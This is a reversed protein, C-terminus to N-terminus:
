DKRIGAAYGPGFFTMKALTLAMEQPSQKMDGALWQQIVGLHASTVYAMLYDVPVLMDEKSITAIKQHFNVKMFEKLKVQFAPDGQPGLILKMFRGNEKIYEFLKVVFSLPEDLMNANVIDNPNAEKMFEQIEQLIENESQELLDYKDRYHLYFTGRNIDAKETLDRVTIGEFGKEEMLETLADRVMRKTRVVRRDTKSDSM